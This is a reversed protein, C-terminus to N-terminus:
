PKSQSLVADAPPAAAAKGAAQIPSEVLAIVRKLSGRNEVILNRAAAATSERLAPDGLFEMVTAALDEKDRVQRAAGAAIASASTQEFNFMHPGFVTPVGAAMSEVPNQGGHRVLSGGVFAVDAAAYLTPLEGMTDGVVVDTGDPLREHADTHLAVNFGERRCLNTVQAFREPHRPVVVLLADPHKERLHRFAGLVSAEESQHTSAAIWVPRSQGWRRRLAAAESAVGEPKLVDFKLNGTVQMAHAPAGLKRLREADTESRIAMLQVRHLMRRVFRPFRRYGAFSRPSVRVNVLLLPIGRDNCLRFINPWFETEVILAVDPHVRDLFRRVSGPLDYPVYCHVVSDGLLQQVQESGTPTMTTVLYTRDPFSQQLRRVLRVITRVEGVSVAHIWVVNEADLKPVFGFRERWRKLYPAYRLGRWVLHILAWPVLLYVGASYLINRGYVLEAGPLRFRREADM